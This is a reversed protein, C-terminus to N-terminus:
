KDSQSTIEVPHGRLINAYRASLWDNEKSQMTDLLPFSDISLHGPEIKCLWERGTAKHMMILKYYDTTCSKVMRQVGAYRWLIKNDETCEISGDMATTIKYEASKLMANLVAPNDSLLNKEEVM